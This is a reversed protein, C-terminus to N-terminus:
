RPPRRRALELTDILEVQDLSEVVLDAASLDLDGTLPHPVAVTFLGAGVAAAVGHPSDEVAVSRNPDVALYACALRYCEPDPKAPVTDSRCVVGSFRHRIGLRELHGEVWESPSSSAIGVPIRADAAQDLWSLIGARPRTAQLEDRRLRRRHALDPDLSLGLRAELEVWPDFSDETGINRQWDSRDLRHGHDDWLEAWSRFISDETDLITGDFDLILGSGSPPPM